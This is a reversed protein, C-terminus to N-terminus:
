RQHAVRCRRGRSSVTRGHPSRSEQGVNCTSRISDDCHGTRQCSGLPRCSSTIGVADSSCTVNCAGNDHGHGAAQQGTGVTQLLCVVFLLSGPLLSLSSSGWPLLPLCLLITRRQRGSCRFVPLLSVTTQGERNGCNLPHDVSLLLRIRLCRKEPHLRRFLFLYLLSNRGSGDLALM